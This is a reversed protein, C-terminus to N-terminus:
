YGLLNRLIPFAHPFREFLQEWFLLTPINYSVPMTVENNIPVSIDLPKLFYTKFCFDAPNFPGSPWKMWPNNENPKFWAEGRTYTDNNAFLWCYANAADGATGSCVIYYKSGPTISIDEFDFLVWTGSNKITVVSTDITKTVLDSGNLTDRISVTIEVPEPPTGYKFIYLSVATLKTKTPTFSQANTEPPYLTIGYGSSSTQKQDVGWDFLTPQFTEIKNNCYLVDGSAKTQITEKVNINTASVVSTAVLMLVVIGVIKRKMNKNGGIREKMKKM